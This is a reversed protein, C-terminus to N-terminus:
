PRSPKQRAADMLSGSEMERLCRETLEEIIDLHSYGQNLFASYGKEPGSSEAKKADRQSGGLSQQPTSSTGDISTAAESTDGGAKARHFVMAETARAAIEEADRVSHGAEGGSHEVHYQEHAYLALDEPRTENFDQDVIITHDLTMARAGVAKLARTALGGSYVEGGDAMGRRTIHNDLRNTLRRNINNGSDSESSM